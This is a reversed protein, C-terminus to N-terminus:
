KIFKENGIIYIQGPALRNPQMKRGFIDYCDGDKLDSTTQTGTPAHYEAREVAIAFPRHAEKLYAQAWVGFPIFGSDLPPPNQLSFDIGLYNM